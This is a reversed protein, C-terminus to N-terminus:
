HRGHMTFGAWSPGTVTPGAMTKGLVARSKAWCYSCRTTSGDKTNGNKELSVRSSERDCLRVSALLQRFHRYLATSPFTVWKHRSRGPWPVLCHGATQQYWAQLVLGARISDWTDPNLFTFQFQVLSNHKKGKWTENRDQWDGSELEAEWSFGSWECSLWGWARCRTSARNFLEQKVAEQWIILDKQNYINLAENIEDSARRSGMGAKPNAKKGAGKRSM